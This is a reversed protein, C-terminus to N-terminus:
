SDPADPASDGEIGFEARVRDYLERGITLGLDIFQPGYVKGTASRFTYRIRELFEMGRPYRALFVTLPVDAYSLMEWVTHTFNEPGMRFKDADYLCDSLLGGAASRCEAEAKFAEHNGIAVCIDDVDAGDFGYDNLVPGAYLAGQAAHDAHKRRIDHLLGACHAMRVRRALEQGEPKRERMEIAMLAGADLAVKISHAMGHGFDNEINKAVYGRLRGIVPDAMFLDLSYDVQDMYDAYFTVPPFSSAIEAALIRIREYVPTM